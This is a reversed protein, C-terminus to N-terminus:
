IIRINCIRSLQESKIKESENEMEKERVKLMTIKNEVRQNLEENIQKERV